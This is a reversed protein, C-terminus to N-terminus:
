GGLLHAAFWDRAAGSSAEFHEIYPMFHGGPLLLLRKPELARNYAELSLDAATVDDDRAVIMLLPTPSIRGIYSGPENERSMEASRLTVENLWNPAFDRTGLFFDRAAEGVMAAAKRPVEEVAQITAPEVGRFRALRDANFREELSAMRGAKTQRLSSQYGSIIPVQSVVCRVRRDIAALQIVHGGSYSSGWIGIRGGDIAAETQAFSIADRYARRQLVPDVEQRPLGDSEGFNPNDFVIVALGSAAFVEAYRDLYQEKVASFGHAMIVAPAPAGGGVPLYLWGRLTLGQSMFAISQRSM